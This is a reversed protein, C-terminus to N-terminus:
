LDAVMVARASVFPRGLAVDGEIRIREYAEAPSIAKFFVRWATDDSLSVRTSASGSSESPIGLQWGSRERSLMWEGGAPGDITFRVTAGADAAVGRYAHPLARVSIELVPLLWRREVLAAHGTAERIQQQHHWRETYERGTDMWNRSVGEGAWAVAFLAPADPDLREVFSAVEPGTVALMQTLVTPSLRRAVEVWRANLGDLYATLEGDSSIAAPSAPPPHGDRHFSLKRLDGDLLHAAVDRVRWDGALTPRDWDGAELSALLGLLEDSLGRFLPATFTPALPLM